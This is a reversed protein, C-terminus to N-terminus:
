ICYIEHSFIASINVFGTLEVIQQRVLLESFCVKKNRIFHGNQQKLKSSIDHNFANAIM